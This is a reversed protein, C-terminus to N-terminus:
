PRLAAPLRVIFIWLGLAAVLRGAASLLFVTPFGVQDALGGGILPGIVSSIFIVIQYLRFATPRVEGPTLSVLARLAALNHLAWLFGSAANLFTVQWAATALAWGVPLLCILLSTARMVAWAGRQGVVDSALHSSALGFFLHIASLVGVGLATAGLGRVLYVNWFPAVFQLALNWVFSIACFYLFPQASSRLSLLRARVPAAPAVPAPAVRPIQAFAALGGLGALLAFGFALPFGAVEGGLRIMWGAIPLALVAALVMTDKREHLYAGRVSAPALDVSFATWTLHSLNSLLSRVALFLLLILFARDRGEPMSALWPLGILALYSLRTLGTMGLLALQRRARWLIAARNAFPLALAGALSAAAALLGIQLNSAGWALAYLPTFTLAIQDSVKGLAGDILFLRLPRILEVPITPPLALAVRLSLWLGNVVAAANGLPGRALRSYRSPAVDVDPQGYSMLVTM